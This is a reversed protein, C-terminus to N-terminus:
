VFDDREEWFGFDVVVLLKDFEVFVVSKKDKVFVIM